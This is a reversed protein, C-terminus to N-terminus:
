IHRQTTRPRWPENYCDNGATSCSGSANSRTNFRIQCPCDGERKASFEQPPGITGGTRGPSLGPRSHRRAVGEKTPMPTRDILIPVVPINKKLATDIEFICGITMAFSGRSAPSTMAWGIPGIIALLIDCDDFVGKIYKHFDVGVPTSDCDLFVISKDNKKDTAREYYDKLRDFIRGTIWGTDERRYSIAIGAM